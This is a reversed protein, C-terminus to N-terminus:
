KKIIKRVSKDSGNQIAVFYVGNTLSDVSITEKNNVTDSKEFVVQGSFNYITIVSGKDINDVVIYDVAPNPYVSLGSSETQTIGTSLDAWETYTEEYALSENVEKITRTPRGEADYFREYTENYSHDTMGPDTYDDYMLYSILAGYEDYERIIQFYKIEGTSSTYEEKWGGNPLLDIVTKEMETASLNLTKTWKGNVNDINCVYGGTMGYMDADINAFLEHLKYDEWVYTAEHYSDNGLDLPYLSYPDFYEMNKVPVFNSFTFMGTISATLLEDIANGWTFLLYENVGDGDMDVPIKTIRGKADFTMDTVTELQGNNLMQIGTRIGNGDVIAVTQEDVEWPNEGQKTEHKEWLMMGKSDYAASYKASFADSLSEDLIKVYEGNPLQHYARSIVLKSDHKESILHGQTDYAM